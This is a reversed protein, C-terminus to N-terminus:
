RQRRPRHRRQHDPRLRQLRRRLAAQPQSLRVPHRRRALRAVPQRRHQSLLPPMSGNLSAGPRLHLKRLRSKWLQRRKLQRQRRCHPCLRHLRLRFRRRQRNLLRTSRSRSTKSCRLPMQFKRRLGRCLLGCRVSSHLSMSRCMSLMWTAAKSSLAASTVASFPLRSGSRRHISQRMVPLCRM